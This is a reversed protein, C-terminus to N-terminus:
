SSRREGLGACDPCARQGSFEGPVLGRGACTACKEIKAKVAKPAKKEKPPLPVGDHAVVEGAVIEFGTKGEAPTCGWVQAGADRAMSAIIALSKKDFMSLEHIRVVKLRKTSAIGIAMAARLRSAGGAQEFPLGGLTAGASNFGLGEVPFKAAALQRVKEADIGDIKETMMKVEARMSDLDAEIDKRKEDDSVAANVKGAGAIQDRISDTDPLAILEERLSKLALDAADVASRDRVPLEEARAAMAALRRADLRATVLDAGNVLSAIETDLESRRALATVRKARLDSLKKELDDIEDDIESIRLFEMKANAHARALAEATEKHSLMSEAVRADADAIRERKADADARAAAVMADTAVRLADQAAVIRREQALEIQRRLELMEDQKRLLAAIDVRALGSPAPMADFQAKKAKGAANLKTREAYIEERTRDLATFDLGVLQRVREGQEEPKLALFESPDFSCDGALADMTAQPSLRPGAGGAKWVVTLKDKIVEAGGKDLARWFNRSVTLQESLTKNALDLEVSAEQEGTRIPCALQKGGDIAASIGNLISSKGADNDGRLVIVEGEDNLALEVIKLRAFNEARFGVIKLTDDM